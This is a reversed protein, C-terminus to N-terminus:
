RTPTGGIPAAWWCRKENVIYFNTCNSSDVCVGQQNLFQGAPCAGGGGLCQRGEGLTFGSICSLCWYRSTTVCTQCGYSCPQCTGNSDVGFGDKCKECHYFGERFYAARNSQDFFNTMLLSTIPNNDPVFKDQTYYPYM